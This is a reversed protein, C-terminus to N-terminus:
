QERVHYGALQWSGDPQRQMSLTEFIDGAQWRSDYVVVTYAGNPAGMPNTAYTTTLLQRSRLDGLPDRAEHAKAVWADLAVSERFWPSAAHWCQEYDGADMLGLWPETALHAAREAEPNSETCAGLGFALAAVAIFRIM